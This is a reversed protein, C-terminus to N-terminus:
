PSCRGRARRWARGASTPRGSPSPAPSGSRAAAGGRPSPCWGRRCWWTGPRSRSTGRCTSRRCSRCGEVLGAGRHARPHAEVVLRGEGDVAHQHLGLVAAGDGAGVRRHVLELLAPLAVEGVLVGGLVMSTVPLSISRGAAPPPASARCAPRRVLARQGGVAVQLELLLVGHQLLAAAGVQLEVRRAVHLAAAGRQLGLDVRQLRRVLRHGVAIASTRRRLEVLLDLEEGVGARM